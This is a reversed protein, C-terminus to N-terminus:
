LLKIGLKDPLNGFTVGETFLNGLESQHSTGYDLKLSSCLVQAM